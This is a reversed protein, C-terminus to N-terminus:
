RCDSKGQIGSKKLREALTQPTIGISKALRSINGGANELCKEYGKRELEGLESIELGTKKMRKNKWGITKRFYELPNEDLLRRLPPKDSKSCDCGWNGIHIAREIDQATLRGKTKDSTM